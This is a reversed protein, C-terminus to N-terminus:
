LRVTKASLVLSAVAGNVESENLVAREDTQRTLEDWLEPPLYRRANMRLFELPLGTVTHATRVADVVMLLLFKNRGERDRIENERAKAQREMEKRQEEQFRIAEEHSRCCRGLGEVLITSRKSVFQSCVPCLVSPTM